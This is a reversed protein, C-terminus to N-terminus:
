ETADAFDRIIGANEVASRDTYASLTEPTTMLKEAYALAEKRTTIEGAGQAEDLENLMTGMLRGPPLQLERQLDHGDILRKVATMPPTRRYEEVLKAVIGTHWNWNGKELNPGRTALHDALSFYLTAVAADGLDRFFRYIARPTPPEEDKSMQVPRLHYRVITEVFRAERASFRLRELIVAAMPAGEQPHGYFRVQGYQNIVRTQPKAIDHLMAALKTLVYRTSPPSVPGAFYAQIDRGRPIKSLVKTKAFAWEGKRLIFDLADISRASHLLVNWTHERPQETGRLPAIEPIIATLLGLADLETVADYTGPLAFLRLLEDRVREPAAKGILKADRKMIDRTAPEIDFGLETKLRVGRLLRLPDHRFCGPSVARIIRHEIDDLGGAPDIIDATLVNRTLNLKALDLAMADVTFDRRRLDARLSGQLSAIDLQWKGKNAGKPLLRVVRKEVDLPILTADLAAALKESIASADAAVAIDVDIARRKMVLDRVVGGVAYAPIDLKTLFRRVRRILSATSPNLAAELHHNTM